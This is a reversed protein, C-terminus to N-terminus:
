SVGEDRLSYDKLTPVPRYICRKGDGDKKMMKWGGIRDVV